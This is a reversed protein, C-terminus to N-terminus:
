PFLSRAWAPQPPLDVDKPSVSIVIELESRGVGFPGDSEGQDIVGLDGQQSGTILDANGDGDVDVLAVETLNTGAVSFSTDAEFTGNGNGLWM